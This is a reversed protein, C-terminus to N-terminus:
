SLELTFRSPGTTRQECDLVKAPGKYEFDSHHRGRYFVHIQDGTDSANLMRSEAFHDNPGEWHLLKGELRNEYQEFSAQKEKTVFLIINKTGAPTVVGRALAQVGKYSWLDALDQRSYSGGVKLKEFM